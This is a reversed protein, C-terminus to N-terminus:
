SIQTDRSMEKEEEKEINTNPMTKQRPCSGVIPFITNSRFCLFRIHM